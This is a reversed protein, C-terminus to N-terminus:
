TYITLSFASSPLNCTFTTAPTSCVYGFITNYIGVSAIMLESKIYRGWVAYLIYKYIYHLTSKKRYVNCVYPIHFKTGHKDACLM